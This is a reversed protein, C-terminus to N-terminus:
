EVLGLRVLVCGWGFGLRMMRIFFCITFSAGREFIIFEDKISRGEGEEIENRHFM